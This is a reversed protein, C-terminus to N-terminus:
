KVKLSDTIMKEKGSTILSFLEKPEKYSWSKM